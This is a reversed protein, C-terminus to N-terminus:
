EDEFGGESDEMRQLSRISTRVMGRIVETYRDPHVQQLWRVDKEFLNLTVKRLPEEAQNVM